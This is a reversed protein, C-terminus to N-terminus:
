SGRWCKKKKKVILSRRIKPAKKQTLTLVQRRKTLATLKGELNLKVRSYQFTLLSKSPVMDICM